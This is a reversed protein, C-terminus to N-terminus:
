IPCKSYNEEVLSLDYLAAGIWTGEIVKEFGFITRVKARYPVVLEAKVVSAAVRVATGWRVEVDLSSSFKVETENAEIFSWKHSATKTIKVSRESQAIFPIGATFTAAAGAEFTFGHEHIFSSSVKLTKDVKFNYKVTCSGGKNEYIREEIVEPSESVRQGREPLFEFSVIDRITRDKTFSLFPFMNFEYGMIESNDIYKGDDAISGRYFRGNLKNVAWLEGDPSFSIFHSIKLWGRGGAMTASTVWEEYKESTPQKGKMIQDQKNVAYLLGSPHFFLAECQEWGTAGIKTAEGYMWPVNENSPQPGKYFDGDNTTGYLEGNPHFFLVKFQNWECKGVRRAVSFWDVDKKSPLPGRYLDGEQVCFLEGEPSFIVHSVNELKGLESSRAEYNDLLHRPPLGIKITGDKTVALLLTEPNQVNEQEGCHAM